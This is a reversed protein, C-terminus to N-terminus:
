TVSGPRSISELIPCDPREDGDCSEVLDKLVQIAEKLEALKRNMEALRAQAILKVEESSRRRDRYLALLDRCQEISFGFMRARAVFALFNLESDSFQRYGKSNRAPTVLGIDEYYRITKAPLGTLTSAEGIEM